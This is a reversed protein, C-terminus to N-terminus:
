AIRRGNGDSRTRTAQVVAFALTLATAGALFLATAVDYFQAPDAPPAMGFVASTTFPAVAVLVAAVTTVVGVAGLARSMRLYVHWSLM